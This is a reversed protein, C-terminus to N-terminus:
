TRGLGLENGIMYQRRSCSSQRLPNTLLLILATIQAKRRLAVERHLPVPLGILM